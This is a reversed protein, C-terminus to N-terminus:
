DSPVRQTVRPTADNGVIEKLPKRVKTPKVTIALLAVCLLRRMSVIEFNISNTCMMLLQDCCVILSVVVVVVVVVTGDITM